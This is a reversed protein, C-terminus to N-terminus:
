ELGQPGVDVLIGDGSCAVRSLWVQSQSLASKAMPRIWKEGSPFLQPRTSHKSWGSRSVGAEGGGKEGPERWSVKQLGRLHWKRLFGSNVGWIGVGPPERLAGPDGNNDMIVHVHCLLNLLASHSLHQCCTNPFAHPLAPWGCGHTGYGGIWSVTFWSYKKLFGSLEMKRKVVPSQFAFIPLWSIGPTVPMNPRPICFSASCLSVIKGLSCMAWLLCGRGVVCSFVRFMSM